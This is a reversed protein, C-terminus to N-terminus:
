NGHRLRNKTRTNGRPILRPHQPTCSAQLVASFTGEACLSEGKAVQDMFYAEKDELNTPFGEDKAQQLAKMIVDRLQAGQAETEEKV